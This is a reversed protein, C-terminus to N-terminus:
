VHDIMNSRLKPPGDLTKIPSLKMSMLHRRMLKNTSDIVAKRPRRHESDRRIEYTEVLDRTVKNVSAKRPRRPEGHLLRSNEAFEVTLTEMLFAFPFIEKRSKTSDLHGLRLTGKTGAQHNNM